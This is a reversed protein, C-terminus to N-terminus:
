INNNINKVFLKFEDDSLEVLNNTDENKISIIEEIDSDHYYNIENKKDLKDLEDLEDLDDLEDLEDLETNSEINNKNEDDEDKDEDEDLEYEEINNEIINLLDNLNKNDELKLYKDNIISIMNLVELELKNTNNKILIVKWLNDYKIEFNFIKNNISVNFIIYTKNIYTLNNIYTVINKLKWEFLINEILNLSSINSELVRYYNM